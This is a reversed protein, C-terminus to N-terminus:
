PHANSDKKAQGLKSLIEHEQGGGCAMSAHSILRWFDEEMRLLCIYEAISKNIETRNEPTPREEFDAQASVIRGEMDRINAHINGFVEKNWSKLAKKVRALKIQLNLLGEAETPRDWDERVLDIFVAHWTWMNQFRFPRGGAHVSPLRCRVLVPGHDSAVRPLNTVRASEFIRTWSESLLVRDLREFLGNKAWTYDSGDCGPDLLRCDEIPEAFDIMEAQRNTDSGSRERISLITNFDGGISWPMGEATTSIERMKDWLPIREGRSCKAYVASVLIPCPLRPYMFRGHLVQDSDDEVEFDAGEEVFIWIKGNANSAKFSLGVAKLYKEPNPTTLPEM